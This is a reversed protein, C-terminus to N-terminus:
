AKDKFFHTVVRIFQNLNDLYAFHGAGEFLILAADPMAQELIRGARLPTDMDQDGWFLLTPAQVRRAYPLLDHSVVLKFTETLPGAKLYDPSGFRRRMAARVRIKVKGLGPLSLISMLVRRALYYLRMKPSPPLRVGASNSLVIRDIRNAYDAGLVLSVRGGFSHGVLHVRELGVSDLYQVVWGAYDPVGWAEPPLATKGFGPFDVVHAAFGAEALQTAVPWMLSIDCGWGHLLLVPLGQGVTAVGTQLNGVQQRRIPIESM